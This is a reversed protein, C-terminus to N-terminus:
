LGGAPQCAVGVVESSTLAFPTRGPSDGGHPADDYGTARPLDRSVPDSLCTLAVLAIWLRGEDSVM